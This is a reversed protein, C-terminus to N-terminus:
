RKEGGNSAQDAQQTRQDIAEDQFPLDAADDFRKKNRPNIVWLFIGIFTLLMIVPIYPGYTEYSM